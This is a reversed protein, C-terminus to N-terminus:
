ELVGGSTIFDHLVRECRINNPLSYVGDDLPREGSDVDSMDVCEMVRPSHLQCRMYFETGSFEGSLRFTHDDALVPGDGTYGLSLTGYESM